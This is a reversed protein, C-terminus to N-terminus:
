LCEQLSPSPSGIQRGRTHRWQQGKLLPPQGMKQMKGLRETGQALQGGATRSSRVAGTLCSRIGLGQAAKELRRGDSECLQARRQGVHEDDDDTANGDGHRGHQGDGEGEAGELEGLHSSGCACM